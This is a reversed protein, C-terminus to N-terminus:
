GGELSWEEEEQRGCPRRRAPEESFGAGIKTITEFKESEDNYSALLFAGYVGTRKGKRHWAGIM